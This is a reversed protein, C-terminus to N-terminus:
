KVIVTGQESQSNFHVLGGQGVLGIKNNNEDYIDAGFPVAKKDQLIIRYTINNGKQTNFKVLVASGAYPAIKALNNDLEVDTDM